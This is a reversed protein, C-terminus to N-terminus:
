EAVQLCRDTHAPCLEHPAGTEQSGSIAPFQPVQLDTTDVQVTFAAFRELMEVSQTCMPSNALGLEEAIGILRAVQDFEHRAAKRRLAIHLLLGALADREAAALQQFEEWWYANRDAGDFFELMREASGPISGRTPLREPPAAGPRLAAACLMGMVYVTHHATALLYTKREDGELEQLRNLSTGASPLFGARDEVRALVRFGFAAAASWPTGTLPWSWLVEGGLDYDGEDLCRALVAEAEALVVTRKRPLPIPAIGFDRVYVMAHTFAYVDEHSGRLLDMPNKLVSQQVAGCSAASAHRCMRMLWERELARHPLREKGNHAASELAKRLIADCGADPFGMRTLCLHALGYDLALAPQQCIALLVRRSRAHPTILSVLGAIRERVEVGADTHSAILLLMATEGILKEPRIQGNLQTTDHYGSAALRELARQAIHLAHGLRRELDSRRWTSEVTMGGNM